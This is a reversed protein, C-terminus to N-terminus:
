RPATQKQSALNKKAADARTALVWQSLMYPQGKFINLPLEALFIM